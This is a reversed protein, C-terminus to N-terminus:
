QDCRDIRQRPLFSRTGSSGSKTGLLRSPRHQHDRTPRSQVSTQTLDLGSRQPHKQHVLVTDSGTKRCGLQRRLRAFRRRAVLYTSRLAVCFLRWASLSLKSPTSSSGNSSTKWHNSSSSLSHHEYDVYMQLLLIM